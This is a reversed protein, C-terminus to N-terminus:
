FGWRIDQSGMVILTYREVSDLEGLDLKVMTVNQPPVPGTFNAAVPEAKM